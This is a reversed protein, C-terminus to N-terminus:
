NPRRANTRQPTRIKEELELVAIRFRPLVRVVTEDDPSWILVLCLARVQREV